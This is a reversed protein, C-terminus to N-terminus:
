ADRYAEVLAACYDARCFETQKVCSASRANQPLPFTLGGSANGTRLCRIRRSM